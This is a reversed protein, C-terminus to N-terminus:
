AIEDINYRYSVLTKFEGKKAPNQVSFDVIVNQYKCSNTIPFKKLKLEHDHHRETEPYVRFDVTFCDHDGDKVTMLVKPWRRTCGFCSTQQDLENRVVMHYLVTKDIDFYSRWIFKTTDFVRFVKTVATKEGATTEVDNQPSLQNWNIIQSYFDSLVVDNPVSKTEELDGAGNYLNLRRSMEKYEAAVISLIGFIKRAKLIQERTPNDIGQSVLRSAVAAVVRREQEAARREAAARASAHAGASMLAVNVVVVANALALFFSISALILLPNMKPLRNHFGQQAVPFILSRNV